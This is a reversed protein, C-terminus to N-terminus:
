TTRVGRQRLKREADKQSDYAKFEEDTMDWVNKKPAPSAPSGRDIPGEDKRQENRQRAREEERAKDAATKVQEMAQKAKVKHVEAVSRMLAKDWDDYTRAEATYKAFAATLVPDDASIGESNLYSTSRQQFDAAAKEYEQQQSVTNSAEAAREEARQAKWLRAEGEDMGRTAVEELRAEMKTIKANATDGKAESRRAAKYASDIDKKMEALVEAKATSVLQAIETRTLATETPPTAEILPAAPVAVETAIVAEEQPEPL